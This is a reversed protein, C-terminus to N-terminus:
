EGAIPPGVFIGIGQFFILIGFSNVLKKVGLIDVIIVSKQSIYTGVLLGYIACCVALSNFTHLYPVVFSVAGVIFMNFNYIFIRYPRVKELDLVTGSVIRGCGDFFGTIAILYTAKREEIGNSTAYAPIFVYAAQFAVTFLLIAACFCCFRLDKLLSFEFLTRKQKHKIDPSKDYCCLFHQKIESRTSARRQNSVSVKRDTHLSPNTNKQASMSLNRGNETLAKSSSMRRIMNKFNSLKSAKRIDLTSSIEEELLVPMSKEVEDKIEKERERRSYM